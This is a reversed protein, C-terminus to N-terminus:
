EFDRCARPAPGDEPRQDRVVFHRIGAQALPYRFGKVIFSLDGDTLIEAPPNFMKLVRDSTAAVGFESAPIPKCIIAEKTATDTVM